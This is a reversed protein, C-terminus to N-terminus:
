VEKGTFPRTFNDPDTRAGWAKLAKKYGDPHIFFAGTDTLLGHVLNSRKVFRLLEDESIGFLKCVDPAFLYTTFPCSRVKM